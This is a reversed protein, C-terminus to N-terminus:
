LAAGLIGLLIQMIVSGTSPQNAAAPVWNVGQSTWQVAPKGDIVAPTFVAADRLRSCVKQDLDYSYTSQAILCSKVRGQESVEFVAMTRGGIRRYNDWSPYDKPRVVDSSPTLMQAFTTQNKAVITTKARIAIEPDINSGYSKVINNYFVFPAGSYQQRYSLICYELAQNPNFEVYESFEKVAHINCLMASAMHNGLQSSKQLYSVGEKYDNDLLLIGVNFASAANYRSNAEYM